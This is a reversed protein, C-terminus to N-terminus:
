QAKAYVEGGTARVMEIFKSLPTGAWIVIHRKQWRETVLWPAVGRKNIDEVNFPSNSGTYREAPTEFPGEFAVRVIEWPEKNYKDGDTSKHWEYPTGANAEYPANNWDDGWQEALNQTTFFAFCGDVYCLRPEEYRKDSAM